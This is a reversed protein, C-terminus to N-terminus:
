RIRQSWPIYFTVFMWKKLYGKKKISYFEYYMKNYSKKKKKVKKIM